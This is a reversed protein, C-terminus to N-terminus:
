YGVARADMRATIMPAEFSRPKLRLEFTYLDEALPDFGPSVGAPNRSTQFLVTNPPLGGTAALDLTEMEGGVNTTLEFEYDALTTGAAVGAASTLDLHVDVNWTAQGFPDATGTDTIYVAAGGQRAVPIPASAPAVRRHARIGIQAGNETAVVFGGNMKGAEDTKALEGTGGIPFIGGVVDARLNTDWISVKTDLRTEAATTPTAVAVMTMVVM